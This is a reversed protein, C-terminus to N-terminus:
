TGKRGAVPRQHLKFSNLSAKRFDFEHSEGKKGKGRLLFPPRKRQKAKRRKRGRSLRQQVKAMSVEWLTRWGWSSERGLTTNGEGRKGL